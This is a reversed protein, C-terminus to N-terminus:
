LFIAVFRVIALNFVPRGCIVNVVAITPLGSLHGNHCESRKRMINGLGREPYLRNFNCGLIVNKKLQPIRGTILTPRCRLVYTVPSM